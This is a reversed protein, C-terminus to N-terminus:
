KRHCQCPQVKKNACRRVERVMSCTHTTEKTATGWVCVCVYMKDNDNDNVTLRPMAIHTHPHSHPHPHPHPYPHPHPHPYPHPHEKNFNNNNTKNKERNLCNKKERQKATTTANEWISITTLDSLTKRNELKDWKRLTNNPQTAKKIKACNEFCKM